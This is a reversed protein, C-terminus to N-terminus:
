VSRESSAAVTANKVQASAAPTVVKLVRPKFKRTRPDFADRIADSFLNAALVLTLMFMFATLLNWWIMPERSMEMRSGNIMSGYSDMTPDVGIGLYSLVAEYLVLGSFELVVTILVIHMVNPLLHRRMIAWDSVGFAKAAQVYELERLKLAEARLLRCLSAWGTLGLIMCLMFLRLDARAASTEFLDPHTDIFVQMMLVCAAVLLVGPISTLTTYIYQIIDDVRGKFYGSSIGFLIAPPLMALTTLSGIVFATRISKLADRLVDNGTSDTGLAHYGTALGGLAGVFLSLVLLTVLMARWPVDTEGQLLSLANEQWSRRHRTAAIVIVTIVGTFVVGAVLGFGLRKLVDGQWQSGPDTLTEGAHVLRPFDRVPQGNVVGVTEKTFQQYALPASYTKERQSLSTDELLTDLLSIVNPAYLPVAQAAEGPVDPLRPRYHLSDLLAVSIFALLVVASCMAPTDHVVRRWTARMTPVHYVRWFYLVVAVTMMFLAIDTWLFIFKPM